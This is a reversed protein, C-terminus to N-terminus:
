STTATGVLNWDNTTAIVGLDPVRVELYKSATANTGNIRATIDVGGGVIASTYTTSAKGDGGTTGQSPSFSGVPRVGVHGIHGGNNHAVASFTISKGSTAPSTSVTITATSTGGAGNPQVEVPSSVVTLTIATM